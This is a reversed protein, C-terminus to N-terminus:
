SRDDDHFSIRGEQVLETCLEAVMGLPLSLSQAVEAQDLVEGARFLSLIESKAQERSITRLVIVEEQTDSRLNQIERELETVKAALKEIAERMETIPDPLNASSVFISYEGGVAIEASLSAVNSMWMTTAAGVPYIGPAAFVIYTSPETSRGQQEIERVFKEIATTM